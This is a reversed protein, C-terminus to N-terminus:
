SAQGEDSLKRDSLKPNGEPDKAAGAGKLTFVIVSAIIIAGGIFTGMDPVERLMIFGIIAAILPNVFMYNTVESTRDALSIAKSWSLYALASPFVSLYIGSLNAALGASAMDHLLDPLFFVTQIAGFVASYTVVEMATYGMENFKRNLVSYGAFVSGCLFMWLIGINISLVGNWLLLVAVGGFACAISIWGIWNIREHYITYLGIATLIPSATTVISGTASTLTSMGINFFMFYASFGLAGSLFFWLLDKKHFPKRIHCIKGIILLVIASICCREFCLASSSIADGMFRTFPFASGWLLITLFALGHTKIKNNMISVRMIVALAAFFTALGKVLITPVLISGCFSVVKM